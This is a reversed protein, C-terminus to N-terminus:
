DRRAGIGNKIARAALALAAAAMMALVALLSDPLASLASAINTHVVGPHVLTGGIRQQASGTKPVRSLSNQEGPSLTTVGGGPAAGSGGGSGGGSAAALQARRIEEGCPSYEEVETPLEALARRYDKQSFGSLSQGHTCREIIKEGTDASATTALCLCLSLMLATASVIRM